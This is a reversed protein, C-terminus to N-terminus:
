HPDPRGLGLHITDHWPSCPVSTTIATDNIIGKPFYAAGWQIYAKPGCPTGHITVKHKEGNQPLPGKQPSQCIYIFLYVMPEPSLTDREMPVRSPSCPPPKSIHIILPHTTSPEPSPTVRWVPGNPPPGNVSYKSICSFSPEPFLADERHSSPPPPEKVSFGSLYTFSPEPSSCREEHPTLQAVQLPSM